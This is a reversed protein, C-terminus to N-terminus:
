LSRMFLFLGRSASSRRLPHRLLHGHLMGPVIFWLSVLTGYHLKMFRNDPVDSLDDPVPEALAKLFVRRLALRNMNRSMTPDVHFQPLFRVFGKRPVSYWRGPRCLEYCGQIIVPSIPKNVDSQLYFPGKKFDGLLGTKSRTGEPAIAVSRGFDFVVQALTQLSKKAREIVTAMAQQVKDMPLSNNPDGYKRLVLHTWRLPIFFFNIGFGGFMLLVVTCLRAIAMVVGLLDHAAARNRARPPKPDCEIACTRRGCM